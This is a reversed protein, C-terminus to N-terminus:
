GSLPRGTAIEDFVADADVGATELVRRVEAPDKLQLGEDHRLAFLGRHVALFRDPVQRVV